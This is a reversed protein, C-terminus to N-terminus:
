SKKIRTHINIQILQKYTHIVLHFKTKSYQTYRRTIKYSYATSLCIEIDACLSLLSEINQLALEM